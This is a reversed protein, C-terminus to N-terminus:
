KEVDFLRYCNVGFYKCYAASNHIVQQSLVVFYYAYFIRLTDSLRSYHWHYSSSKCARIVTLISVLTRAVHTSHFLCKFFIENLGCSFDTYLQLLCMCCLSYSCNTFDTCVSSVKESGEGHLLVTPEVLHFSLLFGFKESFLLNLFL